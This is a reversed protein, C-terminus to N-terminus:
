LNPLSLTYILMMKPYINTLMNPNLFINVLWTLHVLQFTMHGYKHVVIGLVAPVVAAAGEELRRCPRTLTARGSM